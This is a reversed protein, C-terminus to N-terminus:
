IAVRCEVADELGYLLKADKLWHFLCSGCGTTAGFDNLEIFRTANEDTPDEVVDFVFGRNKLHETMAPHLMIQRHIMKANEFVRQSIENQEQFSKGAHYWRTHWKYQSIASIRTSEPACFVRYELDTRMKDDWKLLYLYVPRDAYCKMMAEIGASGRAPTALRSWLDKVDKVPGSGGLADKLSSTDLRPFYKQERLLQDVDCGQM